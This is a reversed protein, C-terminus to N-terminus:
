NIFATLVLPQTSQAQLKIMGMRCLLVSLNLSLLDDKHGAKQHASPGSDFVTQSPGQAYKEGWHGEPSAVGSLLGAKRNWLRDRVTRGWM